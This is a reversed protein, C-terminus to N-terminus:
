RPAVRYLIAPEAPTEQGIADGPSPSFNAPTPPDVFYYAGRDIAADDMFAYQVPTALSAVVTSHGGSPGLWNVSQRKAEASVCYIGNASGLVTAPGEGLDGCEGAGGSTEAGGVTVAARPGDFRWLEGQLRRRGYYHVDFWVNEGNAVLWRAGQSGVDFVRAPVRVGPTVRYLSEDALKERPTARAPWGSDLSPAIWLGNTNTALLARSISPLKWREVVRGTAESVRLLEGFRAGTGLLSAYVWLSGDGYITQARCDSCDAYTVIVPGLRYGGPAARDVTAIRMALPNTGWGPANRLTPVYEFPIVREGFLAPDGCSGHAVSIVRLTVADVTAASCTGVVRGHWFSTNYDDSVILRGGAVAVSPFQGLGALARSTVVVRPAAASGTGSSSGGGGRGRGWLALGGALACVVLVLVVYRRRRRREFRRAEEFLGAFLDHL